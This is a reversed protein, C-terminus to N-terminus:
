QKLLELMEPTSYVKVKQQDGFAKEKSWIASGFALALAFYQVDKPHPALREAEERYASFKELPIFEIQEKVFELVRELEERELGSRKLIEDFHKLLETFMFEPAIFEFRKLRRNIVFVEFSKSRSLLASLVTNADV